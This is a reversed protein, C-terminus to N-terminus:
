TWSYRSRNVRIPILSGFLPHIKSINVIITYGDYNKIYKVNTFSYSLVVSEVRSDEKTLFVVFSILIALYSLFISFNHFM